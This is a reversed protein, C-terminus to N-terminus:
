PNQDKLQEFIDWSETIKTIREDDDDVQWNSINHVTTSGFKYLGSREDHMDMPQSPDVSCPRSIPTSPTSSHDALDDINSHVLTTGYFLESLNLSEGADIISSGGSVRKQKTEAYVTDDISERKQTPRFISPPSTYQSLPRPSLEKPYVSLGLDTSETDTDPQDTGTDNDPSNSTSPADSAVPMQNLEIDRNLLEEMNKGSSFKNWKTSLRRGFMRKLKSPNDTTRCSMASGASTSEESSHFENKLHSRQLTAVNISSARRVNPNTSPGPLSSIDFSLQSPTDTNTKESTSANLEEELSAIYSSGYLNERFIDSQTGSGSALKSIEQQNDANHIEIPKVKFIRVLLWHMFKAFWPFRFPVLRQTNHAPSIKVTNTPITSLRRMPIIIIEDKRNSNLQDNTRSPFGDPIFSNGEISTAQVVSYKRTSNNEPDGSSIQLTPMTQHYSSRDAPYYNPRSASTPNDPTRSNEGDIDNNLYDNVEDIARMPPHAFHVSSKPAIDVSKLYRFDKNAETDHGPRYEVDFYEYVFKTKL